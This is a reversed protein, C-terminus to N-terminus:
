SIKLAFSIAQDWYIVKGDKGEIDLARAVKTVQDYDGLIM